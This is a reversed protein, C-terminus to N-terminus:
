SECPLEAHVHTPGGTPSTVSFRGDLAEVRARLGDIGSGSADAGGPGDDSVDLTLVDRTQDIRVRVLAGPAHKGANALSEAVVFYAASEVAPPLRDAGVAVVTLSARSRETLAEVAAVLGRDALVPPAIGRTLDRLEAIATTAEEKASRILEAAEPHDELKAEARGLQMSLAVLRAQAGDHLDRETRRLESAQADLAGRRTRSLTAVREELERARLFPLWGRLDLLAHLGAFLVLGFVPWFVWFGQAGTFAWDAFEVVILTACVNLTWLVRTHPGRPRDRLLRWWVFPMVFLWSGLIVWCPWFYGGGTAAWIVTTILVNVAAFAIASALVSARPREETM